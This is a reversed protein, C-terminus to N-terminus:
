QSRRGSLGLVLNTFCDLSIRVHRRDPPGAFNPVVEVDDVIDVNM